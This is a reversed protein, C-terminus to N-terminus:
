FVEGLIVKELLNRHTKKYIFLLKKEFHVDEASVKILNLNSDEQRSDYM